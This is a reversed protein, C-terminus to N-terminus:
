DFHFFAGFKGREFSYVWFHGVGDGVQYKDIFTKILKQQGEYSDSKQHRMLVYRLVQSFEALETEDMSQRKDGNTSTEMANSAPTYVARMTVPRAALDKAHQQLSHIPAFTMICKGGDLVPQLRMMLNDLTEEQMRSFFFFSIGPNYLASFM